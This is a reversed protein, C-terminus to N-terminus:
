SCFCCLDMAGAASTSSIVRLTQGACLEEATQVQASAGAPAGLALGAVGALTNRQGSIM